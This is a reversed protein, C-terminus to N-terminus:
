PRQQPLWLLQKQSQLRLHLNQNQWKSDTAGLQVRQYVPLLVAGGGLPPTRILHSFMFFSTVKHGITTSFPLILNAQFYMENKCLTFSVNKIKGLLKISESIKFINAIEQTTSCRNNEILTKIQHRDVEVPRGSQGHLMMWCSTELMSSKVCKILWLVKEM